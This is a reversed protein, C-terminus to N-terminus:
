ELEEEDEYDGIDSDEEFNDLEKIEVEEKGSQM